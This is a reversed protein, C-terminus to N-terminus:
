QNLEEEAVSDWVDKLANELLVWPKIRLHIRLKFFTLLSCNTCNTELLSVRNKSLGTALYFSRQTSFYNVRLPRISDFVNRIAQKLQM